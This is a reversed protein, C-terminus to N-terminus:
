ASADGKETMAKVVQVIREWQALPMQVFDSGTWSPVYTIDANAVATQVRAAAEQPNM